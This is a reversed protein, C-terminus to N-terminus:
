QRNVPKFSSGMKKKIVFQELESFFIKEFNLYNAQEARVNEKM